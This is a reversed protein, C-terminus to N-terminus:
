ENKLFFRKFGGFLKEMSSLQLTPTSEIVNAVNSSSTSEVEKATIAPQFDNKGASDNTASRSSIYAVQEKLQSIKDQILAIKKSKEEEVKAVIKNNEIGGVDVILVDQIGSPSLQSIHSGLTILTGAKIITDQPFTFVRNGVSLAKGYLSVEYNSNNKLKIYQANAEVISLKPDVIKVSLRAVGGGEVSRVNLVVVYDGPYLYTHTVVVGSGTTGDGFNWTFVNNRDKNISTDVSFELPSGVSGLRDRGINLPITNEKKATSAAKSSYHVSNSTSTTSTTNQTETSTSTTNDSNDTTGNSTTATHNDTVASSNVLGPTPIAGIWNGGNQLQLSNGDGGGGMDSTYSYQDATVGTSDKLILTSGSNNLSSFSAKLINGTFSPWDTLFKASDIVIIAFSGANLNASGSMVSLGHNSASASELFKWGSLDVSSSGSNYIEIWERSSDAGSPDYMVENFKVQASAFIPVLFASGILLWSYKLSSPKLM